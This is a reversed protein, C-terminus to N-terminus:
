LMTGFHLVNGPIFMLVEHVSVFLEIPIFQVMFLVLLQLSVVFLTSMNSGVFVLQEAVKVSQFVHLLALFMDYEFVFQTVSCSLMAYLSLNTYQFTVFQEISTLWTVFYLEGM